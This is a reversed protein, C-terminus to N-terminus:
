VDYKQRSTLIKSLHRSKKLCWIQLHMDSKFIIKFYWLYRKNERCIVATVDQDCASYEYTHAQSLIREWRKWENLSEMLKVTTTKLKRNPLVHIRENTSKPSSLAKKFMLGRLYIKSVILWIKRCRDVVFSTLIKILIGSFKYCSPLNIDKYYQLISNM